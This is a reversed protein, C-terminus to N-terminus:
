CALERSKVIDGSGGVPVVVEAGVVCESARRIGAPGGCLGARHSALGPQDAVGAGAAARAPGAWQASLGGTEPTSRVYVQRGGPDRLRPRVHDVLM